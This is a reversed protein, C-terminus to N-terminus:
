PGTKQTDAFPSEEAALPLGAGRPSLCTAQPKPADEELQAASASPETIGSVHSSSEKGAMQAFKQEKCIVPLEPFPVDDQRSIQLHTLRPM